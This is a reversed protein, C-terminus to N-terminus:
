RELAGQSEPQYASSISHQIGLMQMVQKFLKSLFNTGQDTQITKPLGFITFFKTLTKIVLPAIIRSLPIAEPFRTATCM